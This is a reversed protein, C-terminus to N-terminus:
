TFFRRYLQSYHDGDKWKEPDDGLSLLKQADQPEIKGRLWDRLTRQAELREHQTPSELIWSEGYSELSWSRRPPESEEVWDHSWYSGHPFFHKELLGHWIISFSNHQWRRKFNEGRHCEWKADNLPSACSYSIELTEVPGEEAEQWVHSAFRWISKFLTEAEARNGDGRWEYPWIWPTRHRPLARRAAFRRQLDPDKAPVDFHKTFAMFRKWERQKQAKAEDDDTEDDDTEADACPRRFALFAAHTNWEQPDYRFAIGPRDDWWPWVLGRGDPFFLSSALSFDFYIEDQCHYIGWRGAGFERAFLTQLVDPAQAFVLAGERTSALPRELVFIPDLDPNNKELFFVRNNVVRLWFERPQGEFEVRASNQALPSLEGTGNVFPEFSFYNDPYDSM